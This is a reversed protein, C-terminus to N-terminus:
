LVVNTMFHECAVEEAENQSQICLDLLITFVPTVM